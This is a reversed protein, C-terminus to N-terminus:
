SAKLRHKSSEETREIETATDGIGPHRRRALSAAAGVSLSSEKNEGDLQILDQGEQTKAFLFQYDSGSNADLARKFRIALANYKIKAGEELNNYSQQFLSPADSSDLAGESILADFNGLFSVFEKHERLEEQFMENELLRIFDTECKVSDYFDETSLQATVRPISLFGDPLRTRFTTEKREAAETETEKVLDVTKDSPTNVLQESIELLQDLVREMKGHNAEYVAEVVMPELNEFMSCLSALAEADQSSRASMIVASRGLDPLV